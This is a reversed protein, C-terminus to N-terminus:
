HSHYIRGEGAIDKLSTVHFMIYILQANMSIWKFFVFVFFFAVRSYKLCSSIQKAKLFYQSDIM